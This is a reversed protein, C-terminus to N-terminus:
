PKSEKSPPNDVGAADKAFILGIGTVVSTFGLSSNQPVRWGFITIVGYAISVIGIVTTKIEKIM